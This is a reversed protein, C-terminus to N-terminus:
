FIFMVGSSIAQRHDWERQRSVAYHEIDFRVALGENLFGIAGLGLSIALDTSRHGRGVVAVAGLGAALHPVIRRKPQFHYHYLVLAFLDSLDGRSPVFSGLFEVGMDRRIQTSLRSSVAFDGGVMGYGGALAPSRALVQASIEGSGFGSLLSLYLILLFRGGKGHVVVGWTSSRQQKLLGPIFRSRDKLGNSM